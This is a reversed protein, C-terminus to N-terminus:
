RSADQRTAASPPTVTAATAVGPLAAQMQHALADGYQAVLALPEDPIRTDLEQPAQIWWIRQRDNVDFRSIVNSVIDFTRKCIIDAVELGVHKRFHHMAADILWGDALCIAHGEWKDPADNKYFGVIFNGDPGAYWAQCPVVRADIGFHRLARQSILATLSCFTKYQAPVVNYFANGLATFIDEHSVVPRDM